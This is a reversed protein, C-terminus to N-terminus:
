GHGSRVDEAEASFVFCIHLLEDNSHLNMHLLTMSLISHPRPLGHSAANLLMKDLM